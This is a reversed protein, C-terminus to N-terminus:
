PRPTVGSSYHTALYDLIDRAAAEDIPAGFRGIMKQVTKEWATRDMLPANMPIYDLSHCVACHASTTDRGMADVLRISEEGASVLGNAAICAFAALLTAARKM